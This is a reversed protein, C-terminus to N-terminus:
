KKLIRRKIEKKTNLVERKYEDYMKAVALIVIVMAIPVVGNPYAIIGLLTGAIASLVMYVWPKFRIKRM